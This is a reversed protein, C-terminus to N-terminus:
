LRSNERRQTQPAVHGSLIARIAPAPGSWVFAYRGPLLHLSGGTAAGNVTPAELAKLIEVRPSVHFLALWRRLLARGPASLGQLDGFDVIHVSGEPTLADAAARLAARWDPIMSLSYSFIVRDFRERRDFSEPALAEAYGHILRIKSDLGSHRLTDQATTLMAQSADLGFLQADPYLRAIRVLNRATGCGVEVLSEGPKLALGRILKDRGFLYYKRTLDYIHRQRRYVSDMLAAHSDPVNETM